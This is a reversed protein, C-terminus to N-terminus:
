PNRCALLDREFRPPLVVVFMLTGKDMEKQADEASVTEPVKFRPPYFANFLEKSLASGDEDVFAISANNVESSTGTASIYIAGTFAYVVFLIMVPDSFLSRLEKLGLWFINLLSRMAIEGAEEPWGHECGLSDTHLLGSLDHGADDSGTAPGQYLRRRELAHLLDHALRFGRAARERGAHFGAAIVWFVAGDTSDDPDGHHLGGGGPEEHLD